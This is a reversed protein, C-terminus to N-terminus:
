PRKKSSSKIYMGEDIMEQPTLRLAQDVDLEVLAATCPRNEGIVTCQKVLPSSSITHEMPTPNTKEGNEMVLTDDNRGLHRWYGSNPPDEKFLDKTAYDGNPRNAVGTAMCPCGAKIVLHYVGNEKDVPEWEAYSAAPELPRLTDWCDNTMHAM